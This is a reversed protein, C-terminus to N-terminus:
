EPLVIVLLVVPFLLAASRPRAHAFAYLVLDVSEEGLWADSYGAFFVTQPNLKWSFLLQNALQETRPEVPDLYLSPDRRVAMELTDPDNLLVPALHPDDLEAGHDGFRGIAGLGHPLHAIERDDVGGEIRRVFPAVYEVLEIGAGAQGHAGPAVPPLTLLRTAHAGEGLLALGGEGALDGGVHGGAVRPPLVSPRTGPRM